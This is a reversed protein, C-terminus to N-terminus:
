LTLQDVSVTVPIGDHEVINLEIVARLRPQSMLPRAASRGEFANGQQQLAASREAGILAANLFGEGLRTDV